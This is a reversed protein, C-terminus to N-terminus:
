FRLLVSLAVLSKEGGSLLNLNTINKGPPSVKIDVGTELLNEPETYIIRASGGGFLVEFTSPLNENVEKITKDFQEKMISDMEDISKLLNKISDNADNYENNMFQFRADEEKYEEIAELNVNGIQALDSRLQKIEDRILDENDIVKLELTKAHDYTMQYEETLRTLNQQIKVNIISVDTNMKSIQEQLASIYYRKEAIQNNLENIALSQKDKM